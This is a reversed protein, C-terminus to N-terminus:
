EPPPTAGSQRDFWVRMGALWKEYTPGSKSQMEQMSQIMVKIGCEFHRPANRTNAGVTMPKGCSRCAMEKTRTTATVRTQQRPM